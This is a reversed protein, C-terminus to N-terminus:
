RIVHQGGTPTTPNDFDDLRRVAAAIVAPRGLGAIEAQYIREAGERTEVYQLAMRVTLVSLEQQGAAFAGASIDAGPAANQMQAFVM